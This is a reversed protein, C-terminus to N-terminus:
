TRAVLFELFTVLDHSELEVHGFRPRTPARYNIDLTATEGYDGPCAEVEIPEVGEVGITALYATLAERLAETM